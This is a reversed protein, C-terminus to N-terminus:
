GSHAAVNLGVTVGFALLAALRLIFGARDSPRGTVLGVIAATMLLVAVM